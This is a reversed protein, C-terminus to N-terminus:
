FLVIESIQNFFVGKKFFKWEESVTLGLFFAYKRIFGDYPSLTTYTKGTSYRTYPNYSISFRQILDESDGGALFLPRACARVLRLYREALADEADRDGSAALIQLKTDDLEAYDIM